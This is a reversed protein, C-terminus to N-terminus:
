DYGELDAMSLDPVLRTLQISKKDLVDADCTTVWTGKSALSTLDELKFQWVSAEPKGMQICHPCPVLKDVKINFWNNLGILVEITEVCMRLTDTPPTKLPGRVTVTLLAEGPRMEILFMDKDKGAILGNRWYVYIDDVLHMVRIMLRSFFGKPVFELQYRRDFQTKTPDFARWLLHFDPKDEALLSPILTERDFAASNVAAPPPSETLTAPGSSGHPRKPPVPPPARGPPTGYPTGGPSVDPSGSIANQVM